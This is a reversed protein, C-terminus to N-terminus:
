WNSANPSYVAFDKQTPYLPRKLSDPVTGEVTLHVLFMYDSGNSRYLYCGSTGIPKPDTPFVPMYTPALNPIYGGSGSTGYSGYTSCTGHWANSTSPYSFNDFYYLEVAKQVERLDSLRQADRAKARASNLSTLVVSSLLSIIAVVVLLEILTFGFKRSSTM